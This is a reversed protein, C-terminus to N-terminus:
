TERRCPGLGAIIVAYDEAVIRASDPDLNASSAPPLGAPLSCALRYWLLTDRAPPGAGEDVIEGLSVAWRPQAGPRRWVSLSLPRGDSAKLFIQTEGEGEVTGAVHFAEGVGAIRPPASAATAERVIERVRSALAPTWAQQASGPLLQLSGPKAQVARGFVIFQRKTLKPWKGSVDPGLDIIYTIRPALGGSGRILAMVDATVLYRRRGQALGPALAGKLQETKRIRVEAIVPAAIALDAVVAYPVEPAAM